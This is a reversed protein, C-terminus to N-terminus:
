TIWGTHGSQTREQCYADDFHIGLHIFKFQIRKFFEKLQLRFLTKHVLYKLLPWFMQSMLFDYVKDKENDQNEQLLHFLQVHKEEKELSVM